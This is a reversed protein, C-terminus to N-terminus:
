DCSPVIEAMTGSNQENIARLRENFSDLQTQEDDLPQWPATLIYLGQTDSLGVAAAFEAFERRPLSEATSYQYAARGTPQVPLIQITNGDRHPVSSGFLNSGPGARFTIDYADIGPTLDWIFYWYAAAHAIGSTNPATIGSWTQATVKQVDDDDFACGEKISVTATGAGLLIRNTRDIQFVEAKVTVTGETEGATFFIFDESSDITAGSTRENSLEGLGSPTVSYRYALAVGEGVDPVTVTLRLREKTPLESEPPTLRVRSDSSDVTWIDGTNSQAFNAAVATLDFATFLTDVAGTVRVFAGAAASARGYAAELDTSRFDYLRELVASFLANRFTSSSVITEAGLMMAGKLNGASAREFIAPAQVAVITIFDGVLDEFGTVGSVRDLDSRPVLFKIVLPLILQQIAFKQVIEAQKLKAEDSLKAYDGGFGGPGVVAVQYRTKRAGAVNPLSVSAAAKETYALDAGEFTGGTTALGTIIQNITGVAGDLGTVPSVDVRGIRAPAATERGDEDFTSVRDILAFAPRRYRNVPTIQNVGSVQDLRVGSRESSPNILLSRPVRPSESRPEFLADVATALAAALAPDTESLGDPQAVLATSIATALPDLEPARAFHDFLDSAAELPVSFGASAFWALVEATSRPSLVSASPGFWGMLLPAGSPSLAVAFQRTDGDGAFVELTFSGDEVPASTLGNVVTAAVVGAPLELTGAVSLRESSLKAGDAGSAGCAVLAVWVWLGAVVLRVSVIMRAHVGTM